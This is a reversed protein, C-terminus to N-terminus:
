GRNGIRIATAPCIEEAARAAAHHLPAPEPELLVSGGSSDQDFIQPATLACMGAGICLGRDVSIRMAM